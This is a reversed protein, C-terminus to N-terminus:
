DAKNEYVKKLYELENFSNSIPKNDEELLAFIQSDLTLYDKNIVQISTRIRFNYYCEEDEWVAVECPSAKDESVYTSYTSGDPNSITFCIEQNENLNGLDIELYECENAYIPIISKTGCPMEYNFSYVGSHVAKLPLVLIGCSGHCGLDLSNKGCPVFYKTFSM